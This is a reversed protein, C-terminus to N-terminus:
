KFIPLYEATDEIKIEQTGALLNFKREAGSDSGRPIYDFRIKSIVDEGKLKTLKFLFFSYDQYIQLFVVSDKRESSQHTLDLELTVSKGLMTSSKLNISLNSVGISYYISKNDLYILEIENTLDDLTFIGNRVHTTRDLDHRECENPSRGEKKTYIFYDSVETATMKYGDIELKRYTERLVRCDDDELINARSSLYFVKNKRLENEILFAIKRIAHKEEGNISTKASDEQTEMEGEKITDTKTHAGLNEAGGSDSKGCSFLLTMTTILLFKALIKEM